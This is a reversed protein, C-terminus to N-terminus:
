WVAVTVRRARRAAAVPSTLRGHIPKYGTRGQGKMAGRGRQGGQGRRRGTCSSSQEASLIRDLLSSSSLLIGSIFLTTRLLALEQIGGGGGRKKEKFCILPKFIFFIFFNIKGRKSLKVFAPERGPDPETAPRTGAYYTSRPLAPSSHLLHHHEVHLPLRLLALEEVLARCPLRDLIDQRGDHGNVIELGFDTVERRPEPLQEESVGGGTCGPITRTRRQDEGIFARDGVKSGARPEQFASRSRHQHKKAHSRRRNTQFFIFQIQAKGTASHLESVSPTPSTKATVQRSIEQTKSCAGKEYSVCLKWRFTLLARSLQTVSRQRDSCERQLSEHHWGIFDLWLFDLLRM